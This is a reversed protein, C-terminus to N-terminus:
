RNCRISDCRPTSCRSGPSTTTRRTSAISSPTLSHEAYLQLGARGVAAEGQSQQLAEPEPEGHVGQDGMGVAPGSRAGDADAHRQRAAGTLAALAAKRGAGGQRGAPAQQAQPWAAATLVCLIAGVFVMRRMRGGKVSPLGQTHCLEPSSSETVVGRGLGLRPRRASSGQHAPPHLFFAQVLPSPDEEALNQQGLRRMASLFASPNKTLELAYNDARREHSRSVANMLPKVALGMAGAAVLLVPVAAVDSAGRLGFFPVALRLLGHAAFFGAFTLAVDLLVASWIDSHVHHALEHALIVEIEDDSYDALLTDSLLIRRTGGIGTLAANAKRTRDSLTWEYM